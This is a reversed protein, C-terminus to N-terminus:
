WPPERTWHGRPVVEGNKYLRAYRYEAENVWTRLKANEEQIREVQKKLRENEQRLKKLVSVDYIEDCMSTVELVRAKLRENEAALANWESVHRPESRIEKVMGHGCKECIARPKGTSPTRHGCRPCLWQESM